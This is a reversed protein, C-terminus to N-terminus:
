LKSNRCKSKIGINKSVGRKETLNNITDRLNGTVTLESKYDGIKNLIGEIEITIKDGKESIGSKNKM